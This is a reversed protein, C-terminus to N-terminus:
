IKVACASGKANPIARTRYQNEIVRVSSSSLGREEEGNIQTLLLWNRLYSQHTFSFVFIKCGLLDYKEGHKYLCLGKRKAVLIAM